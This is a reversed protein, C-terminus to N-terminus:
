QDGDIKSDRKSDFDLEACELFNAIGNMVECVNAIDITPFELRILEGRQKDKSYRFAFSYPDFRAMEDLM